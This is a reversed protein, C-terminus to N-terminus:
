STVRFNKSSSQRLLIGEDRIEEVMSSFEHLPCNIKSAIRRLDEMTCESGAGVIRYIENVFAKKMKRKSKGGAGGRTRDIKGQADRHVEEVSRTMLEVVDLADEKM